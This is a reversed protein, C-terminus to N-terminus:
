FFLLAEISYILNITKINADYFVIYHCNGLQLINQSYGFMFIESKSGFFTENSL